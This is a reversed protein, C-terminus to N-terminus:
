KKLSRKQLVLQNIKSFLDAIDKDLKKEDASMPSEIDMNSYLKKKKAVLVDVQKLLDNKVKDLDKIIDQSSAEKIEYTKKHIADLQKRLSKMEKEHNDMWEQDPYGHPALEEITALKDYYKPDEFLHDKAIEYAVNIDSTHEMEVKVGKEAQNKLEEFSVEHKDAIDRLTMGKSLGGPIEEGEFAFTPSSTKFDDKRMVTKAIIQNATKVFPINIDYRKDKVVIQKYKELFDKFQKKHRSLRKFFGTLEADSIEKGNRPDNLRDFFHNSFEIDEPSLQKEAYREVSKLQSMSMENTPVNFTLNSPYQKQQKFRDAEKQKLAPFFRFKALKLIKRKKKQVMQSVRTKQPLSLENYPKTGFLRGTWEKRVYLYALKYARKYLVSYAKKRIRTRDKKINIIKRNKEFSWRRAARQAQTLAEDLQEDEWDELEGLDYEQHQSDWGCDHCLYPHEDGVEIEWQHNCIECKIETGAIENISENTDEEYNFEGDYDIVKVPLKKGSATFSMMRTNGALLHLNGNKDRLAMPAPVESNSAIGKELRDWDKGYEQAREKGLALMADKGGEESAALIDGVDTNSMNQMDESSLFIPKAAKMKQIMDNEDKFANPAVKQTVDNEFYEGTEEEYEKDSYDRIKEVKARDDDLIEWGDKGKTWDGQKPKSKKAPDNDPLQTQYSDGASGKTLSKGQPEQQQSKDGGDMPVYKGTDDKKFTPSNTDKEKGKEKYKGYGIHTYKEDEKEDEFFVQKGEKVLRFTVVKKGNITPMGHEDKGITKVVVKKNKFKGMLLTDGIEVPLTIAEELHNNWFQKDFEKKLKEDGISGQTALYDDKDLQSDVVAWGMLAAKRTAHKYWEDYAGKVYIDVQNTSTTKGIVGAPFFSVANVPGEPYAIWNGSFDDELFKQIVEWGWVKAREANIYNFAKFSPLFVNPGDDVGTFDGAGGLYGSNSEIILDEIETKTLRICSEQLKNTILNFITKNFKSYARDLFFNKKQEESGSGLGIRVETGSVGGGGEPAVYVYGRDKYGETPNGDWKQFYKGGLRSADKQGVVTVFATTKENFKKLIETPAYPNKVEHIKNSPIGFMTTMIQVKEKFNFPSKPKEVKNSTGVYVNDKGFKKVLHSYTAYHGKHFPQFRGVYIVVTKKIPTPEELLIQEVLYKSLENM